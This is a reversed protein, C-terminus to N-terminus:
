SMTPGRVRQRAEGIGEIGYEVVDGAKLYLPPNHGMGVGSPTGTTIVDGPLLTMYQSLSSILHPVKFIMQSTTASQRTDGNVKCWLHADEFLSEETTVLFPGLPAFTDASKGKVFQGSRNRQFERESYDNCITFGAVHSWAEGESVYSARRGIVCALEVEYDTSESGRPLVLDDYVGCLASSAKMFIKPESPLRGGTEAAHQAYNLGIGIIKSPRAVPAGLRVRQLDVEELGLLDTQLTVLFELGGEGFFREDFDRVKTSLDRGCGRSDLIGPRERGPEGFRFLKM